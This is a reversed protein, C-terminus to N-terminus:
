DYAYDHSNFYDSPRSCDQHEHCREDLRLNEHDDGRDHYSRLYHDPDHYSYSNTM